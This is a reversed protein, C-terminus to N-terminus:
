KLPKLKINKYWCPSGHDQLGIFGLRPHDRYVVDFKHRSGDPRQNPQVFKSLDASNVKEGNLVVEIRADRCTVEIHNWEGVPRMANRTPKSLDYIAGTDVFGATQTDDIAIEIGNFGVDRGPKPTLSSTHVFIGSNCHPSIKFDAALIFNEWKQTYVMMYHGARHPNIAGDEVPTRPATHDSNMWGAHTKGDFLLVWGEKREKETLTNEVVPNVKKVRVNRYRVFQKTFDGGGHVQLAIGGDDPHRRQTEQWDCFRVGNIWTTIRPPNGVIRARLENWQGYRWFKPWAEPMVPLSPPAPSTIEQIREVSDLFKFNLVNPQGGLGEGYVGMLNGNAHYDIMAQWAKGDETSRLFLGSDPGFDNNMELAVEFDGFKEDTIIIGGNGPIDQSGIIAGDEVVWRGGSQHKSAGSHGTQASVHWGHLSKGDFIPTWEKGNTQAKALSGTLLLCLLIYKVRDGEAKQCGV